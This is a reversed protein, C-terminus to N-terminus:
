WCKHNWGSEKVQSVCRKVRQVLHGFSLPMPVGGAPVPEAKGNGVGGRGDETRGGFATERDQLRAERRNQGKWSGSRYISSVPLDPKGDDSGAYGKAVAKRRALADKFTSMWPEVDLFRRALRGLAWGNSYRPTPKGGQGVKPGLANRRDEGHRGDWNTGRARLGGLDTGYSGRLSGRRGMLTDLTDRKDEVPANDWNTGRGKLSADDDAPSANWDSGPTASRKDTKSASTPSSWDFDRDKLDRSWGSPDTLRATGHCSICSVANKTSDHRQV